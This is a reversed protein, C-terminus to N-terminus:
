DARLTVLPDIRSARRAPVYGALLAVALLVAALLALIMPDGPKVQYLLDTLLRTAPFALAIGLAIGAGAVLAVRAIVLRLIEFPAAGLALRVGIERTRQQVGQSVMGYMGLAALLLAFAAFAALLSASTRTRWTADGFRDEMRKIDILPLDPDLAAVEARVAAVVTDMPASSRIFLIGGARPSQLLPLYVDPTAATAVADYRVNGVVGIVEAGDWFGGQGVAIRKGLPDEGPWYARAASENIIVVKQRGARDQPTFSRGHVVPIGMTEFYSPSAWYVGIQREQGPRAAPRGPFDVVTANCGGSIPACNGFAVSATQPRAALRELLQEVIQTARKADYRPAPLAVRVTVLSQSNFGLETRQLRAVSQLMLGGASLLVFALAVQAVTLVNRLAFRKAGSSVAGGAGIKMSAGFEGRATRWAPGLGFLLSTMAGTAVAFLVATSDIGVLGLGIRTLGAARGPPLVLRLDPLMATAASMLLSAIFVGAIAGATAVVLSEIMLLRVVRVRSAGLALRIGIERRRGMARVLTLHAVNMCVILLVAGLAALLILMSRRVVPDVREEQLSTATAGWRESGNPLRHLDDIVRGLVEVAARATDPEVGSKLRAVVYFRHSWREALEEAPVTSLPLWVDAQGTLGVFGAPMVGLITHAAGNLGLSKGVITRDGGFRTVWLRHSIVAGPTGGGAGNESAFGAGLAPNLGLVSFYTSEAQEGFIREPSGSGTINWNMPSYLATDEFVQQQAELVQYKPYSWVMLGKADPTKQSPAVLHVLMLRQPDKFPLPALLVGNVLAMMSVNAGIGLALLLVATLTYAPHKRLSRIAHAVDQRIATMGNGTERKGNGTERLVAGTTELDSSRLREFLYEFLVSLVQRRYWWSAAVRSGAAAKAAYAEELDGAIGEATERPLVGLLHAFLRPPHVFM